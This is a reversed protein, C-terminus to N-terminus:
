YQIFLWTHIYYQIYIHIYMNPELAVARNAYDVVSRNFNWPVGGHLNEILKRWERPIYVTTLGIV